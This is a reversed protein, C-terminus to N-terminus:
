DLVIVVDGPSVEVDDGARRRARGRAVIALTEKHCASEIGAMGKVHLGDRAEGSTAPRKELNGFPEGVSQTRVWALDFDVGFAACRPNREVRGPPLTEAGCNEVCFAHSEAMKQDLNRVRLAFPVGVLDRDALDVLLDFDAAYGPPQATRLGNWLPM